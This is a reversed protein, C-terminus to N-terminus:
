TFKVWIENFVKKKQWNFMKAELNKNKKIYFLLVKIRDDDFSSRYHMLLFEYCLM